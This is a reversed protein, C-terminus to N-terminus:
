FVHHVEAHAQLVMNALIRVLAPDPTFPSAPTARPVSGLPEPAVEELVIEMGRLLGHFVIAGIGVASAEGRVYQTRLQEYAAVTAAPM